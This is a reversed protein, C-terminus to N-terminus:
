IIYPHFFFIKNKKIKTEWLTKPIIRCFTEYSLWLNLGLQRKPEQIVRVLTALGLKKLIPSTLKVKGAFVDIM